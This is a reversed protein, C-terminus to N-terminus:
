LLIQYVNCQVWCLCSLLYVFGWYSELLNSPQKGSKLQPLLSYKNAATEVSKGETSHAQTYMHFLALSDLFLNKHTKDKPVSGLQKRIGPQLPFFKWQLTGTHNTNLIFSKKNILDCWECQSFWVCKGRPFSFWNKLSWHRRHTGQPNILLM